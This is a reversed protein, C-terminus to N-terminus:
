PVPVYDWLNKKSKELAMENSYTGLRYNGFYGRNVAICRRDCIPGYERNSFINVRYM